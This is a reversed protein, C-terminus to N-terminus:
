HHRKERGPSRLVEGVEVEGFWVAAWGRSKKQGRQKRQGRHRWSFFRKPIIKHLKNILPRTQVFFFHM